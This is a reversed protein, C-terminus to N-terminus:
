DRADEDDHHHHYRYDADRERFDITSTIHQTVIPPFEEIVAELFRKQRELRQRRQIQAYSEPQEGVSFRVDGIFNHPHASNQGFANTITTLTNTQWVEYREETLPQERSRDGRSYVPTIAAL